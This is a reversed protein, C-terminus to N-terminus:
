RELPPEPGEAQGQPPSYEVPYDPRPRYMSRIWDTAQQFRRDGTTRFAPRWYDGRGDPGAVTPHPFRSADRPLGMHLLPSSGPDEYNILPTDDSLRFRDLILFNTYVTEDTGPRQNSLRLRGAESGGHCRTTACSNIVWSRHVSDRFDRMSRPHDLVKVEGYLNRARVRYMLELLRVPSTRFLAARGERTQPMAPHDGYEAILRTIADRSIILRPPDKLDVEYVKILNIADEDLLPFDVHPRLVGGTPQAPGQPPGTHPSPEQAERDREEARRRAREALDRQSTVLLRLRRAEPNNPQSALVQDVEYLALDWQERVRLWEVLLLLREVDDAEIAARMSLYRERVPPLVIVRDVLEDRIPTDIGAIKLVIREPTRDVLFGTFRQGDRLLVIAERPELVAQTAAELDLRALTSAPLMSPRQARSEYAEPAVPPGASDRAAGALLLVTGALLGAVFNRTGLAHM